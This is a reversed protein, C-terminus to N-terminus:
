SKQSINVKRSVLIARIYLMFHSLAKNDQYLSSSFGNRYRDRERDFSNIDMYFSDLNIIIMLIQLDLYELPYISKM